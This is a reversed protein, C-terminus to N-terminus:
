RRPPMIRGQSGSSGGRNFGNGRNSSNRNTGNTLTGPAAWQDEEEEDPDTTREPLEGAKPKPKNKKIDLPKQLDLPLQNVDWNVVADWNQKLPIKKPYYYTEEPQISDAISGTDYIGNGNPDAFLRAYYTGPPVFEFEATGTVVPAWAVPQDASSLLQVVALSDSLGTINFKVTSYDSMKKVNFELTYPRNWIGYVSRAALSDITLRYKAGPEWEYPAVWKMPRYRQWESLVPPEVPIWLTDDRVELHIGAPDISAVPESFTMRLPANVDVTTGGDVRISLFNLQPLTDADEKDKKKPKEKVRRSRMFMRLTDTFWSIRDLSDTRPYRARLLISDQAILLTDTLWLDLTDRRASADLVALDYLSRGGFAGGVLTLEPLTDAPAAMQLSIRHRESRDNKMLYQPTYNENFWTLLIDDPGFQTVEHTIISDTGDAALLTDTHVTRTATTTVPLGYFAVDESRDWKYDRNNDNLAFVHYTGEKLNRITFQGLQNTKTIREMPLTTLATDSLDSYVGVLMGQAPELTAADLVMGSIQLSDIESGTSFAFAFGDIENGENLDSIADSFDLTYTTNPILTDRLEVVVRHGLASILPMTKQAPSIVVKSMVDKIQVNEDFEISIRSRKVELQGPSPNSKVFLPPDVDRPGGQPRGMSACAALALLALVALLLRMTTLKHKM